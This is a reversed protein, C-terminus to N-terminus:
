SKLFTEIADIVYDQEEPSLDPHMPLSIVIKAMRESVPFDGEQYGYNQYAVQLHLPIPYYIANPIRKEQLYKQLEDRKEEVQITYQHFIHDAYSAISPAVVSTNQLGQTYYEAKERRQQNWRDLYKIKVRLVAAQITDLRSNVGLIDHYYRVKSGHNAIMRVNEALKEDNTVVMGGDGYAGLNKSPFFSICGLKGLTCVPKGKYKEGVAQAADEIVPIGQREAIEMLPDMDTSQGYLHVPIIAKTRQTIAREILAPDINYNGQDIDVYVPKAGLIAITEATAVFTFSTTIVEDGPGINLAMLALQLADTGSACPIAFNVGLYKQVDEALLHVEPGNIFKGSEVVKMIAEDFEPKYQLYQRKVDVMQIDM